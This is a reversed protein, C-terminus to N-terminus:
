ASRARRARAAARDNYLSTRAVRSLERTLREMDPKDRPGGRAPASQGSLLVGLTDATAVGCIVLHIVQLLYAQPDADARLEGHAQGKAIYAAIVDMWPRVADRLRERM